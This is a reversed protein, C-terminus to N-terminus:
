AKAQAYRLRCRLVRTSDRRLHARAIQSRTSPKVVPPHRSPHLRLIPPACRYGDIEGFLCSPYRKAGGMRRIFEVAALRLHRRVQVALDPDAHRAGARRASQYSTAGAKRARRRATERRAGASRSNCRSSKPASAKPAVVRETKVPRADTRRRSGSRPSSADGPRAAEAFARGQFSRPRAVRRCSVRGGARREGSMLLGTCLAAAIANKLVM